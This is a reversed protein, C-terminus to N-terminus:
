KASPLRCRSAFAVFTVNSTAVVLTGGMEMADRANIALNLVALELQTPDVLAQWLDDDDQRTEIRFGGLALRTGIEHQDVERHRSHGAGVDGAAHMRGLRRQRCQEDGTVGIMTRQLTDILAVDDALWEMGVFQGM